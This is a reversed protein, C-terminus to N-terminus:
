SGYLPPCWSNTVSRVANVCIVRCIRGSYYKKTLLYHSMSNKTEGDPVPVTVPAKVYEIYLGFEARQEALLNESDLLPFLSVARAFLESDNQVIDVDELNQSSVQFDRPGPARYPRDSPVNRCISALAPEQPLPEEELEGFLRSLADPVVNSKGAVHKVTFDFNQFAIAWRTLM